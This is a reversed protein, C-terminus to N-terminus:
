VVCSERSIIVAIIKVRLQKKESRHFNSKCNKKDRDAKTM